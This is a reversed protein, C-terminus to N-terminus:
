DDRRERERPDNELQYLGDYVKTAIDHEVFRGLQDRLYQKSYNSENAAYPATIRGENMMDLLHHDVPALDDEDLMQSYEGVHTPM